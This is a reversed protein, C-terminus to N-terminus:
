FALQLRYPDVGAAYLALTVVGGTVVPIMFNDDFFIPGGVGSLFETAGGAAGAALSVLPVTAGPLGQKPDLGAGLVCWATITCIAANALAGLPSKGNRFRVFSDGFMRAQMIGVASALPDGFALFLMALLAVTRSYLAITTLVGAMYFVGPTYSNTEHRRMVPGMVKMFGRQLAGNPNRIRLTEVTVLVIWSPVLAALAVWKNLFLVFVSALLVGGLSHFLKRRAHFDTRLPLAGM